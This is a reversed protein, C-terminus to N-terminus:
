HSFTNSIIHNGFYANFSSRVKAAPPYQNEIAIPRQKENWLHWQSADIFAYKYMQVCYRFFPEYIYRHQMIYKMVFTRSVLREVFVFQYWLMQEQQLINIKSVSHKFKDVWTLFKLFWEFLKTLSPILKLFCNICFFSSCDVEGDVWENNSTILLVTVYDIICGDALSNLKSYTLFDVYNKCFLSFDLMTNLQMEDFHNCTSVDLPAVLMIQRELKFSCAGHPLNEVSMSMRDQVSCM